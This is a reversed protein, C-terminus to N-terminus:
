VRSPKAVTRLLRTLDEAAYPKRLLEFGHTGEQAIAESYGSALIIPLDPIRRQLDQALEIGSMGPMVVDSFVVDFAAGTTGIRDLADKANAAWTTAYGLDQLLQTTFTGVDVNDEVILVRRGNGQHMAAGASHDVIVEARTATAEPLYLTITTGLSSSSQVAVDGGSQKAFGFVQSLGLGTGAGVDKTTFFPEFISQAIDDPIGSGTDTMSVAVFTGSGGAHGRIPPLGSVTEVLVTLKGEGDMADRANVALNVLSTEFQSADAQVFCPERVFRTEITIRSGVITRLMDTVTRIREDVDFVEPKLAQRRAFALLQGTLKAARDVTDSIADVYRRRREEPQDPRRLLQTSSKIITLLNNFDHAVGGTLHGIAELKQSQRLADQAQVLKAQERLRETVDTVFQYCGIREGRDNRLPKFRIEYSPRVRQPDGYDEIITVEEGALGRAWGIRVQEQHEPQDALLALMNDGVKPRVGYIREFEVANANNIALIVYDLDVVMILVDTNEVVSALLDRESIRAAVDHRLTENLQQLWAESTRLAAEARVRETVDFGEVFIGTVAGSEDTVPQYVFDVFRDEITGSPVRQLRIKRASGKFALGSAYVDDLLEFLGQGALEPLAPRVAKGILDRHGVLQLYAANAFEFIHEPGRVMAMFGPAQAFLRELRELEAANHQGALMSVTTEHCVLCVGGVDWSAGPQDIPDFSYTWHTNEIRNNRVIAVSQNKHWVFGQGTMVQEIEPGIVSWIEPWCDRCRQGLAHPHRDPQMSSIHADNYFQILDPGWWVLMPHGSSLMFRIATRLGQPWGEPPGLTTATWDHSRILAGMVGGNALFHPSTM